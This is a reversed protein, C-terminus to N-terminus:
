GALKGLLKRTPNQKAANVERRYRVLVDVSTHGTVDQVEPISLKDDRLAETVFGARLSHAGFPNREGSKPKAIGAAVVQRQVLANIGDGDLRLLRNRGNLRVGGRGALSAFIPEKDTPVRGLADTLAVKWERLATAPCTVAGGDSAQPVWSTRGKGEQDTKSRRVRLSLGDDGHDTLDGWNLASLNSRRLATYFGTLLIARDRITALPSAPCRDGLLLALARNDIGPLDDWPCVDNSLAVHLGQRTLPAGSPKTLVQRLAPTIARLDALAQVLCLDPNEHAEVTVVRPAGHRHSKALMVTVGEDGLEIDAWALRALQGATAQTRVRLLVAARNRAAIYTLGTTAALCREVLKLDLAQKALEPSTLLRRRIGRMTERVGANDGPRPLGIFEAAKNLAALRGSVTGAVVAPVLDGHDDRVFDGTENDWAFAYDILHNAVQLPEFPLAPLGEVACWARWARVHSGYSTLTGDAWASARMEDLLQAREMRRAREDDALADALPMLDAVRAPVLRGHEDIFADLVADISAAEFSPQIDATLAQEVVEVAPVPLGAEDAVLVALATSTTRTGAFRRTTRRQQSM